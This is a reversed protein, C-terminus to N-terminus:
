VEKGDPSWLTKALSSIKVLMNSRKIGIFKVNDKNVMERITEPKSTMYVEVTLHKKKIFDTERLASKGLDPSCIILGVQDSKLLRKVNDLGFIILGAKQALNIYSKM